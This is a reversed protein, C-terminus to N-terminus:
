DQEAFKGPPLSQLITFYDLEKVFETESGKLTADVDERSAIMDLLVTEDDVYYDDGDESDNDTSTDNGNSTLISELQGTVPAVITLSEAVTEWTTHYLEDASTIAHGEHHLKLLVQGRRFSSSLSSDGGGGTNVLREVRSLDGM